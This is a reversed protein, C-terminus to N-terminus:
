MKLVIGLVAGVLVWVSSHLKKLKKNKSFAYRIGFIVIFLILSKYNFLDISPNKLFNKAGKIFFVENFINLATVLVLATVAPKLGDMVKKLVPNDKNKEIFKVVIIIVIFAPAVLGLTACLAGAIGGMRFGAFTAMNVGIPGPTSESVAIMDLLEEKTFWDYKDAMEYLFPITALGGGVAFLGAKFFEFFIIVFELIREM